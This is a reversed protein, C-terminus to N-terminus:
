LRAGIAPALRRDLRDFVFIAGGLHTGRDLLVGAYTRYDLGLREARRLRLLAVDRHPPRWAEAHARRWLWAQWSLDLPPGGNHGSSVSGADRPSLSAPLLPRRVVM